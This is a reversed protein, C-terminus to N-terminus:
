GIDQQANLDKIMAWREKTCIPVVNYKGPQLIIRFNEEQDFKQSGYEQSIARRLRQIYSEMDVPQGRLRKSFIEACLWDEEAPFNGKERQGSPILVVRGCGEKQIHHCVADLNLLSGALVARANQSLAKEIVHAGNTTMYLVQSTPPIRNVDFPYNSYHFFDALLEYHEGVIIAGPNAEKAQVVSENNVVTIQRVGKGLMLAINSTAAWLDVVVATKGALDEVEWPWLIQPEIEM